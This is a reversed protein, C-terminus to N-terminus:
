CTATASTQATTGCRTPAWTACGARCRGAFSRTSGASFRRSSPRRRPALRRHAPRPDRPDSRFGTVLRPQPEPGPCTSTSRIAARGVPSAPFRTRSWSCSRTSTRRTACSLAALFRHLAESPGARPLACSGTPSRRSSSRSAGSCSGSSTRCRWCFAPLVVTLRSRRLDDDVTSASRTTGSWTRPSTVRQTATRTATRDAPVPLREGPGLLRDRLRDPGPVRAAHRGACSARSGASSPSRRWSAASRPARAAPFARASARCRTRSCCRPCRWSSAFGPSGATRSGPRTSRSTSRTAAARGAFGPYPNAALTMYAVVHAAYRVYRVPFPAADAAAHANILTAIWNAIAVPSPSRSGAARALHLASDGPVASVGVTLRSRELDPDRIDLRIARESMQRRARASGSKRSLLDRSIEPDLPMM